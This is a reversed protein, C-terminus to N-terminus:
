QEKYSESSRDFCCAARVRKGVGVVLVVEFLVGVIGDMLVM